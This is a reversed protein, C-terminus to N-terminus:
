VSWLGQSHIPNPQRSPPEYWNQYPHNPLNFDAQALMPNVLARSPVPAALSATSSPTMSPPQPPQSSAYYPGTTVPVSSSSPGTTSAPPGVPQLTLGGPAIWGWTKQLEILVKELRWGTERNIKELISLVEAQEGHDTLVAGSIAMSRIAVSAVGRDSTHAVIGCVQHAHHIQADRNEKSDRPSLPNIQALLCMATHFFLRGVVAARKILRSPLRFLTLASCRQAVILITM